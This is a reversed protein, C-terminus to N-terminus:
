KEKVNPQVQESAISKYVFVSACNECVSKRGERGGAREREGGRHKCGNKGDTKMEAEHLVGDGRERERKRVLVSKFETCTLETEM